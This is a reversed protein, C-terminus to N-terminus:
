ADATGHGPVADAFIVQMVRYDTMTMGLKGYVQQARANGKEVYLRIGVVDASQRALAEVHRYLATFVGDRRHAPHVYVSQLWWLEGNRWDSWESTVMIQGVIGGALEAVWYRGLSDDALIRAVGRRIVAADLPGGETEAALRSNFGAIVPGDDPTADRICLPARSM